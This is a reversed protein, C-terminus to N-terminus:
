RAGGREKQTHINQVVEGVVRYQQIIRYSSPLSSLPHYIGVSFLLTLLRASWRDVPSCFPSSITSSLSSIFSAVCLLRRFRFTAERSGAAAKWLYSSHLHFQRRDASPCSSLTNQQAARRRNAVAKRKSGRDRQWGWSGGVAAQMRYLNLTIVVPVVRREIYTPSFTNTDANRYM